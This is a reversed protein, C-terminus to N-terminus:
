GYHRMAAIPGFATLPVIKVVDGTQPAEIIYGDGLYKGVHGPAQMTGDAGPIFVLDGPLLLEPSSVPTGLEAQSPAYHPLQVGALAWAAMVLGSCDYTDPGDAGFVYPKGLQALAFTVVVQEANTATPPIVYGAPITGPPIAGVNAHPIGDAGCGAMTPPLGSASRRTPSRPNGTIQALWTRAQAEHQAYRDPFKSVQVLQAVVGPPQTQWSPVQIVRNIFLRTSESPNMRESLPGWSDRQQFLGVSDHDGGTPPDGDNPLQESAPVKPNAYNHLSSEADATMLAILEAQAQASQDGGSRAVTLQTAAVIVRANRAQLPDLDRIPGSTQCMALALDPTGATESQGMALIALGFTCAAPVAGLAAVIAKVLHHWGTRTADTPGPSSM